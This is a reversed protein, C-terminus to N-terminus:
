EALAHVRGSEMLWKIVYHMFRVLNGDVRKERLAHVVLWIGCIRLGMTCDVPKGAVRLRM